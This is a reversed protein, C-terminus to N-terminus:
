RSSGSREPQAPPTLPAVPPANNLALCRRVAEDRKLSEAQTYDPHQKWAQRKCSDMQNWVRESRDHGNYGPLQAQAVSVSGCISALGILVPYARRRRLRCRNM